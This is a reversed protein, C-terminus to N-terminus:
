GHSPMRVSSAEEQPLKARAVEYSPPKEQASKIKKPKAGNPDKKPSPATEKTFSNSTPGHSTNNVNNNFTQLKKLLCFNCNFLEFDFNILEVQPMFILQKAPCKSGDNRISTCSVWQQPTGSLPNRVATKRKGKNTLRLSPKPPARPKPRTDVMDFKLAHSRFCYSVSSLM